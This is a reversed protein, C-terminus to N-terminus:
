LEEKQRAPIRKSKKLLTRGRDASIKPPGRPPAEEEKKKEREEEKATDDAARQEKFKSLDGFITPATGERTCAEHVEYCIRVAVEEASEEGTLRTFLKAIPTPDPPILFPCLQHGTSATNVFVPEDSCLRQLDARVAAVSGRFNWVRKAAVKFVHRCVQCYIGFGLGLPPERPTPLGQGATLVAGAVVGITTPGRESSCSLLLLMPLLFGVPAVTARRLLAM